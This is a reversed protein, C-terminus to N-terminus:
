RPTFSASKMQPKARALSIAARSRIAVSTTRSDAMATVVVAAADAGADAGVVAKAERGTRRRAMARKSPLRHMTRFQLAAM